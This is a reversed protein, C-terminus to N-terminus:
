GNTAVLYAIWSDCQLAKRTPYFVGSGEGNKDGREWYTQVNKFGVELLIDELEAISWLRWDYTFVKTRKAEGDRKFHIYFMAENTIPNFSHQDWFYSYKLDTFYTEEEVAQYCESGGFIDLVLMGESNLSHLCQEFYSKLTQRKKFTFYSFNLAAIVDINKHKPSLVDQLHVSVRAKQAEDLESLHHVRGYDLPEPDLDYGIALSDSYKKVWTACIAFSGCFDERLVKAERKFIKQFTQAIFKVDSDPNQVSKLYHSYKDFTPLKSSPNM